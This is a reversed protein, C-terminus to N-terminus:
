ADSCEVVLADVILADDHGRHGYGSPLITKWTRCTSEHWSRGWLEGDREVVEIGSPMCDPCDGGLRDGASLPWQLWALLVAGTDELGETWTM